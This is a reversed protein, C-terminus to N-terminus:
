RGQYRAHDSPARNADRVLIVGPSGNSGFLATHASPGAEPGEVGCKENKCARCVAVAQCILDIGLIPFTARSGYIRVSGLASVERDSTESVESLM